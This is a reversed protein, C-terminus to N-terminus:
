IGSSEAYVDDIRLSSLYFSLYLFFITIDKLILSVDLDRHLKSAPNKWTERIQPTFKHM